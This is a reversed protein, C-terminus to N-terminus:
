TAARFRNRPREAIMQHGFLIQEAANRGPVNVAIKVAIKLGTLAIFNRSFLFISLFDFHGM